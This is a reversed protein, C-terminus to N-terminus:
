RGFDPLSFVNPFRYCLLLLIEFEGILSYYRKWKRENNKLALLWKLYEKLIFTATLLLRKWAM